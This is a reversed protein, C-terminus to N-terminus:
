RPTRRVSIPTRIAIGAMRRWRILIDQLTNNMAHGLHLFGTINPPPIVITYPPRASGPDAHFFGQREWLAYWRPEVDRPDYGHGSRESM